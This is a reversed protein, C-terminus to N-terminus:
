ATNPSTLRGIYARGDYKASFKLSYEEAKESIEARSELIQRVARVWDELNKCAFIPADPEHSALVTDASVLVAKGFTLAEVLIGSGRAAYEQSRYPLLVVDSALLMDRYDDDSLSDAILAVNPMKKLADVANTLEPTFGRIPPAVQITFRVRDRIDPITSIAEIIAPLELFGKEKRAAGLFSITLVKDDLTVSEATPREPVPLPLAHVSVGFRQRYIEALLPTETWLFINREFDAHRAILFIYRDIERDTIRSPMKGTEYFTCLHIVGARPVNNLISLAARFHHGTASHVLYHTAPGDYKEILSKWGAAIEDALDWIAASPTKDYNAHKFSHELVVGDPALSRPLRENTAWVVHLGLELAGKTVNRTVSLNHGREGTLSNDIIVLTKIPSASVEVPGKKLPTDGTNKAFVRHATGNSGLAQLDLSFGKQRLIEQVNTPVDYISSDLIVASASDLLGTSM